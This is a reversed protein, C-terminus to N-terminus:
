LIMRRAASLRAIARSPIDIVYRFGDEFGGGLRSSDSIELVGRVLVGGLPVQRSRLLSGIMGLWVEILNLMGRSGMKLGLFGFEELNRVLCLPGNSLFNLLSPPHISLFVLEEQQNRSNRPPELLKTSVM